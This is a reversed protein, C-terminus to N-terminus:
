ARQLCGTAWAFAASFDTDLLNLTPIGHAQACRVAYRTGGGRHHTGDSMKSWYLVFASPSDGHRGLVQQMNRALLGRVVPAMSQQSVGPDLHEELEKYCWPLVDEPRFVEILHAPPTTNARAAAAEIGARAGAEFASDAGKAGGSRLILGSAGLYFGLRHLIALAERPTERSGIGTYVGTPTLVERRM